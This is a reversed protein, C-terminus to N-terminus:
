NKGHGQDRLELKGDQTKISASTFTFGETKWM